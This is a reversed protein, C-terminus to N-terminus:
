DGSSISGSKSWRAEYKKLALAVAADAEIGAINCIGLLSFLCDGLEDRLSPTIEPKGKGYDTCKLIEKGLEGVESCLDIYRPVLENDLEYGSLLQAIKEQM